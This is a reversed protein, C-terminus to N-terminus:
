KELYELGYEYDKLDAVYDYTLSADTTNIDYIKVKSESGDVKEFICKNEKGNMEFYVGYSATFASKNKMYRTIKWEKDPYATKLYDKACRYYTLMQVEESYLIKNEMIRTAEKEDIIDEDAILFEMEEKTLEPVKAGGRETDVFTNLETKINGSHFITNLLPTQFYYVVLIVFGILIILVPTKKSKIPVYEHYEKKPKPRSKVKPIERGKYLEKEIKADMEPVVIDEIYEDETEMERKTKKIKHKIYDTNNIDDFRNSVKKM